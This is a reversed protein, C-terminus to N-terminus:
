LSEINKHRWESPSMGFEEKFQSSFYSQSSMGIENAIETINMTTSELYQKAKQLRILTIFRSVSLNTLSKIKRYLQARSISLIECLKQVDFNKDNLHSEVIERIKLIFKDEDPLPTPETETDLTQFQKHL